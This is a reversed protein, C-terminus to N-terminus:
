FFLLDKKKDKYLYDVWKQYGNYIETPFRSGTGIDKEYEQSWRRHPVSPNVNAWFGYEKPAINEWFSKKREKTFEIQTISKISKFGYKWPLVLRLPAGNQNPLNKGYIGTAIFALPNRAEELTITEQYPWPYWKQKQNFAIDPNFFTKFSVYKKDTEPELFKLLESLQFGYWPIVM